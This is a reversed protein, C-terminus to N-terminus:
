ACGRAAMTYTECPQSQEWIILVVCPDLPSTTVDYRGLRVEKGVIWHRFEDVVPGRCSARCRHDVPPLAM